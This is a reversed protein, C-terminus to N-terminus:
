APPASQNATVSLQHMVRQVVFQVGSQIRRASNNWTAQVPYAPATGSFTDLIWGAKQWRTMQKKVAAVWLAPYAVGSPPELEGAAFNPDAQAYTNSARFVSSYLNQLDLVAYDPFVSDGIDLCRTDQSAGNLSYSGVARLCYTAGNVTTVPTIGSNLLTNAESALWIDADFRQPPIWPTAKNDYDPVPNDTETAARKAAWGAAIISPPVEANRCAYLSERPDNMTAQALTVATGSTGNHGM